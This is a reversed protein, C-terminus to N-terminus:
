VFLDLKKFFLTSKAHIHGHTEFYDMDLVYDVDHVTDYIKSRSKFNILITSLAYQTAETFTAFHVSKRTEDTYIFM